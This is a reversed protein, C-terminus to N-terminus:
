TIFDTWGNAKCVQANYLEVEMMVANRETNWKHKKVLWPNGSRHAILSDTLRDLSPHKGLVKISDWGTEHQTYVLGNPIQRNRDKLRLMQESWRIVAFSPPTLRPLQAPPAPPIQQAQCPAFREM